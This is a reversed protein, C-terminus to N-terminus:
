TFLEYKKRAIKPLDDIFVNGEHLGIVRDFSDLLDLHHTSVIVQQKIKDLVDLMNKQQQQDLFATPEDLLLHTPETILVGLLAIMQKQGASLHYILKKELHSLRHAFLLSRIKEKIEEDSKKGRLGFGLDEEVTPYLIQHEPNQFVFGVRKRVEEKNKKVDFGDVMMTGKTPVQLGKLVRLLTTKGSGNLGIIGIKKERLELDLHSFLVEERFRVEVDELVIM